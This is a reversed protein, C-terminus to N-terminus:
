LASEKQNLAVAVARLELLVNLTAQTRMFEMVFTPKTPNMNALGSELNHIEISLSDMFEVSSVVKCLEPNQQTTLMDTFTNISM